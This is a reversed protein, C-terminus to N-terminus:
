APRAQDIGAFGPCMKLSSWTAGRRDACPWGVVDLRGAPREIVAWAIVPWEADYVRAVLEALWDDTLRIQKLTISRPLNLM